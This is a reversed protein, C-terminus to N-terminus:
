RASSCGGRLQFPSRRTPETPRETPRDAVLFIRGETDRVWGRAPAPLADVTGATPQTTITGNREEPPVRGAPVVRRLADSVEEPEPPTGGSGTIVLESLDKRCPNKAILEEPDILTEPFEITERDPEVDPTNFILEGSLDPNVVSIAAIDSSGNLQTADASLSSLDDTDLIDQLQSATLPQLGFIGEATIEIRGGSGLFANATIDSNNLGVITETQIDINGGDGPLAATGATATIDSNNRLRIDPVDIAINGGQGSGTQALLSGGDLRIDDANIQLIGANGPNMEGRSEVSAIAGNEVDLLATNLTINGADGSADTFSTIRSLLFGNAEAPNTNPLLFGGVQAPDTDPLLEISSRGSLEIASTADIFITGAQGDAFTDSSIAAGDLVTLRDTSVTINGADGPMAGQLVNPIGQSQTSIASPLQGSDITGLIEIRDLANVTINGGMGPGVTNSIVQGGGAVLLYGTEIRADGGRGTGATQNFVRGGDRVILQQTQVLIDGGTGSGMTQADIQSGLLIMEGSPAILEIGGAVEVLSAGEITLNGANGDVIQENASQLAATSIQAGDLVRLSQTDIRLNGANGSAFTQTALATPLGGSALEGSIEIEGATIDLAGGMGTAMTGTSVQASEGLTLRDAQLTINGATGTGVTQTFFGGPFIGAFLTGTLAIESAVVEFNSGVGDFTLAAIASRDLTLRDSRVRVSGGPTGPNSSDMMPPLGSADAIAESVLLINGFREINDYAFTFGEPAPAIDVTGAGAVSGLEIRGSRATINGGEFSVNGGVFAITRGPAVSLGLPAGASNTFGNPSAQSRNVIDGPNDRFQLGLPINTVLLPPAQPNTAGFATGDAFLFSDATTALFSGGIQLQANEGFLIGNPNLLFLNAAGIASITGNINSISGGTVRSFINQVAPDNGFAATMGTPVSFEGFSHFLRDGRLTGGEIAFTDGNPTVISNQPLTADPTIQAAAPLALPLLGWPLAALFLAGITYNKIHNKEFATM